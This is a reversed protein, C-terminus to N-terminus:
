EKVIPKIKLKEVENALKELLELLKKVEGRNFEPIKDDIHTGKNLVSWMSNEKLRGLDEHIEYLATVINYLDPGNSLGRIKVSIGGDIYGSVKKWLKGTICEVAQRCKAASDKLMGNEFKERANQLPISADQYKIFIGREELSDAPLFMYRVMEKKDVVYDELKSVFLEGHCTLIMQTDEFDPNTILLKAVGDRHDDDVSNVIDDFILFSSKEYMAKALLISLGLIRVHGESLIQLADQEIGDEM